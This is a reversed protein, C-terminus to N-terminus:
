FKVLVAAYLQEVELSFNDYVEAAVHLLLAIEQEYKSRRLSEAATM